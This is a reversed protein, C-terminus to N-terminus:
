SPTSASRPRGLSSGLLAGCAGIVPNAVTLWIPKRTRQLADMKSMDAPRPESPAASKGSEFVYMLGGLVLVVVALSLGASRKRSILGCVLGGVVAAILSVACSFVLMFTSPDFTGPKFLQDVGMAVFACAFSAFVIVFMTLYGVIVGVISRAV